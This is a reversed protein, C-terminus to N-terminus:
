SLKARIIEVAKEFVTDADMDTTDLLIADVAPKLPATARNEDRADRELMDALIVDYPITNGQHQLQQFRRKARTESNATVFLKIDANPCVVTGIDRGDLVSGQYIPQGPKRLPHRAYLRQTDLLVDRMAPFVCSQSAANSVEESRLDPDDLMTWSLHDRVYIAASLAAEPDNPNKGEDLIRKGVLRYLAGTDLYYLHFQDALRRALTGKGSAAHGDVAIIFFHSM